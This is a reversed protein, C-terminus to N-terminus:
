IQGNLRRRIWESLDVKAAKAQKVWREVDEPDAVFHVRRTLVKPKTNM